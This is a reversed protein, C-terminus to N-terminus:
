RKWEKYTPDTSGLAERLPPLFEQNGNRTPLIRALARLVRYWLYKYTEMGQLYSGHKILHCRSLQYFSLKWEKYTPDTRCNRSRSLCVVSLFKNGNRTPLIRALRKALDGAWKFGNGNRTPLIRAYPLFPILIPYYPKWEKYTPDTSEPAEMDMDEYHKKTEMGQLYSGHSQYPLRFPQQM